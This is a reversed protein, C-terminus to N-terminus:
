YPPPLVTFMRVVAEERRGSGRKATEVAVNRSLDGAAVGWEGQDRVGRAPGESSDTQPPHADAQKGRGRGEGRLHAFLRPDGSEGREVGGRIEGRLRRPM